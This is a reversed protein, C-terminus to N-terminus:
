IESGAMSPELLFRLHDSETAAQQDPTFEQILRGQSEVSDKFIVDIGHFDLHIHADGIPHDQCDLTPHLTVSRGNAGLSYIDELPCHAKGYPFISPDGLHIPLDAAFTALMEGFNEDFTAPAYVRASQRHRYSLGQFSVRGL